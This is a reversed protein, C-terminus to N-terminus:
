FETKVSLIFFIDGAGNLDSSASTGTVSGEFFASGWKTGLATRLDFYPKLTTVDPTNYGAENIWEWANWIHAAYSFAYRTSSNKTGQWNSLKDYLIRFDSFNLHLGLINGNHDGGKFYKSDSYAITLGSTSSFNVKIDAMLRLNFHDDSNQYNTNSGWLGLRFQPGFSFWLSSQLAPSKDSQSLGYEVYHSLLAVDGKMNFTASSDDAALASNLAFLIIIFGIYRRM